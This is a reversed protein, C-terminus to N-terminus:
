QCLREGHISIYKKLALEKKKAEIMIDVDYNYTDIYNYVYDSHANYRCKINLEECRSESYHIVPKVGNWTSFAIGLAEEEELGDDHFRHHHYDMVIPIKVRKYILDYIEKVSYLSKTDDNELTLRSKVSESLRQFNKIFRYTAGIKDGYAGGIHINIKNLHSRSLNMMDFIQGHKELNNITNLVVSEKPSCLKNFPGPHFTIRHNNDKAFKGMKQLISLIEEYDKLESYEYESSWPFIESSLRFFRFNNEENWKFIKFLDKVNKLALESCYDKGKSNLTAKKMGRNSTIKKDSLEMNICAYGIM